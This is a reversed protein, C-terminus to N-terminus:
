PAQKGTLDDLDIRIVATRRVIEDPFDWPSPGVKAMIATLGRQKGAADDVVVARGTGMVSRYTMSHRCATDGRRLTAAAVVTFSVRPGAALLRFKRGAAASHLWVAGDRWGFNMPVVYAVGDDVLGLHLVTAEDLVAEIAARDTIAREARRM